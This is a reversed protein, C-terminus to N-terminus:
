AEVSGGRLCRERGKEPLLGECSINPMGPPMRTGRGASAPPAIGVGAAAARNVPRWTPSHTESIQGGVSARYARWQKCSSDSARWQREIEESVIGMSALEGALCELVEFARVM